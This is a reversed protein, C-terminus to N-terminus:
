AFMVASATAADNPFALHTAANIWATQGEAFVVEIKLFGLKDSYFRPSESLQAPRNPRRRVAM